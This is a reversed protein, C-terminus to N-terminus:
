STKEPNSFWLKRYVGDQPDYFWSILGKRAMAELRPGIRLAPAMTGTWSYKVAGRGARRAGQVGCKWAIRQASIGPGRYRPRLFEETELEKLAALIEEHSPLPPLDLNVTKTM